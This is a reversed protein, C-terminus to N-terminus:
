GRFQARLFSDWVPDPSFRRIAVLGKAAPTVVYRSRPRRSTLAREVVAAVAEASASMRRNAYSKTMSQDLAKTLRAYPSSPKASAALTEAAVGGFGTRILGPEVVSVQIGFPRVEYRLADALAEVAYKTAHYYGGGPFTFRGGMSSMIVIRGEGASRMGPLVLQTLRALGFVNTEFMQRVRALDVEEIPGYEGYGANNVLRAVPGHDAAVQDVASTMSAEDTVDLAVVHAGAAALDALTEPRRATAVVTHRGHELLREATARGIGSSCGTILV